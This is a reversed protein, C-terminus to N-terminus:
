FQKWTLSKKVKGKRRFENLINRITKHDLCIGLKLLEGQIKKYGWYINDNKMNFILQKVEHKVPPRGGRNKWFRKILQKQWHLVTDPKGISIHGKIDSVKNMAAFVIRDYNKFILKTKPNQRKLIEIEKKHLCLQILLKKKSQFLLFTAKILFSLLSYM